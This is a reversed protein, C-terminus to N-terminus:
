LLIRATILLLGVQTQGENKDEGLEYTVIDKLGKPFDALQEGFNKFDDAYGWFDLSSFTDTNSLGINYKYLGDDDPERIIKIKIGQKMTRGAHRVVTVTYHTAPIQARGQGRAM